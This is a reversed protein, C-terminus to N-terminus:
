RLSKAVQWMYYLAALCGAIVILRKTFLIATAQDQFLWKTSVFERYEFKYSLFGLGFGVGLCVLLGLPGVWLTSSHGAFVYEDGGLAFAFVLFGLFAGFLGYLIFMLRQHFLDQVGLM